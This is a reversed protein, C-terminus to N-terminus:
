PGARSGAHLPNHHRHEPAKARRPFIPPFPPSPPIPSSMAFGFPMSQRVKSRAMPLTLPASSITSACV